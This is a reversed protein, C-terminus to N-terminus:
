PWHRFWCWFWLGQALTNQISARSRPECPKLKLSITISKPREGSSIRGSNSFNISCFRISGKLSTSPRTKYLSNPVEQAPWRLPVVFLQGKGVQFLRSAQNIERWFHTERPSVIDWLPFSGVRNETTSACILWFRWSAPSALPRLSGGYRRVIRRKTASPSLGDCFQRM